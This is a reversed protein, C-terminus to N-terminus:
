VVQIPSSSGDELCFPVSGGALPIDSDSGDELCLPVAQSSVTGAGLVEWDASNGASVFSHRRHSLGTDSALYLSGKPADPVEVEPLGTGTFIGVHTENDTDSILIGSDVEYSDELIQSM